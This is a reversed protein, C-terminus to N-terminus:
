RLADVKVGLGGGNCLQCPALSLSPPPSFASLLAQGKRRLNTIMMAALPAFFPSFPLSLFLSLSLRMEALPRALSAQINGTRRGEAGETCLGATAFMFSATYQKVFLSPQRTTRSEHNMHRRTCFLTQRETHSIRRPADKVRGLMRNCPLGRRRAVATCEQKLRTLRRQEPVEPGLAACERRGERREKGHDRAAWEPSLKRDGVALSLRALSCALLCAVAASSM